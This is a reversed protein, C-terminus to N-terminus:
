VRTKNSRLKLITTLVAYILICAILVASLWIYFSQADNLYKNYLCILSILLVFQSVAITGHAVAIVVTKEPTRKLAFLIIIDVILYVIAFITHIFIENRSGYRDITWDASWHAPITKPLFNWLIICAFVYLIGVFVNALFLYKNLNMTNKVDINIRM